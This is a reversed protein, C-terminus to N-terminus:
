LLADCRLLGQLAANCGDGPLTLAFVPLVSATLLLVPASDARRCRSTPSTLACAAHLHMIRRCLAARRHLTGAASMICCCGCWMGVGTFLRAWSHRLLLVAVM